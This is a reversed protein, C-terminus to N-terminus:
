RWTQFRFCNEVFLRHTKWM